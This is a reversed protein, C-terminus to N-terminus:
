KWANLITRELSVQWMQRGMRTMNGAVQFRYGMNIKSNSNFILQIAPALDLCYHSKDLGQMGLMELYVNVNTQKYDVYEKPLLLYGTSLSYNLMNYSHTAHQEGKSESFIKMYSVTGSVALKNVLQTAILGVQAGDNDGDLNADMYIYPNRTFGADAFAAMRFHQHVDDNSLFRYKVYVKGSEWKIKKSYYDSLTSSFHVMWNKNIGFMLEPMYRQTFKNDSRRLYRGTLKLGISKSPMNSAPESFVYLEQSYVAGAM